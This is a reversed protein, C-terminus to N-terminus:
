PRGPVASVGHFLLEGESAMLRTNFDESGKSSGGNLIVIDAEELAQYLASRLAAQVDPVIPFPVCEAGMEELRRIAKERM